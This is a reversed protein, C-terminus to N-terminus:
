RRGRLVRKDDPLPELGRAGCDPCRSRWFMGSADTGDPVRGSHGCSIRALLERSPAPVWTACTSCVYRWYKRGHGGGTRLFMRGTCGIRECRMTRPLRPAPVPIEVRPLSEQVLVM